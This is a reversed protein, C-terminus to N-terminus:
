RRDRRAFLQIDAAGPHGSLLVPLERPELGLIALDASDLPTRGRKLVVFRCEPRHARTLIDAITVREPPPPQLGAYFDLRPMDSALTEGFRLQRGLERGLDREITHDNQPQLWLKAESGVLLLILLWSWWRPGRQARALLQAFMAGAFPLLLVGFGSLFRFHSRLLPIVACQVAFPLLLM